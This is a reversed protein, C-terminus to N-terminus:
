QEEWKKMEKEGEKEIKELDRETESRRTGERREERRKVGKYMPLNPDLGRMTMLKDQLEKKRKPDTEEQIQEMLKKRDPRETRYKTREPHLEGRIERKEERTEAARKRKRIDKVDERDLGRGYLDMDRDYKVRQIMAALPDMGEYFYDQYDPMKLVDEGTPEDKVDEEYEGEKPMIWKSLDIKEEDKDEPKIPADKLLVDKKGPEKKWYETDLVQKVEEVLGGEEFSTLKKIESESMSNAAKIVAESVDEKKVKGKKYSLVLKFFNAQKESKAPM